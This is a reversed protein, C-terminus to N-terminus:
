NLTRNRYHHKVKIIKPRNL